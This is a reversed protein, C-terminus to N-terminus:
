GDAREARYAAVTQAMGAALDVRPQWGSAARFGAADVSLSESLRRLRSRLGPLRRGMSWLPGPIPVLRHPRGLATRLGAVLDGTSVGADDAVLYPGPGPEDARLAALIADALNAVQILSRRNALGGFPLPWPTDALRLLQRFNAGVGPGYVLPPRLTVVSLGTRGAIAALGSEAAHKSWGYPDQPMPPSADTFPRDPPTAEGLVKISSLFVFRRVGCNAAAEALALTAHHNVADYADPDGGSLDHVKAALHIVADCGALHPAWATVAEIPGTLAVEETSALTGSAPATRLALRTPRDALAARVARGVFGAAGTLLVRSM